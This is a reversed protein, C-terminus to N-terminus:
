YLEKLVVEKYMLKYIQDGKAVLSLNMEYNM